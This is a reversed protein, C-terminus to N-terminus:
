EEDYKVGLSAIVLSYDQTDVINDYNLDAVSITKEDRSGLALRVYSIDYADVIGNQAGNQEPLDGALMYVKSFDLNNTGQNLTIQGVSCRYTGPTTETPSAVCIKKQLHKPGKIFLSKDAGPQIDTFTVSGSWVGDDGATFTGYQPESKSDGEGVVVQVRMTNLSAIPKKLIGQFQLRLNLHVGDVPPTTEAGAGITYTGQEVEGWGYSNGTVYGTVRSRETDLSFTGTGEATGKVTVVFSVTSPLQDNPQIFVYAIHASTDSIDHVLQTKGLQTQSDVAVPDGVDVISLNDGTSFYLDTGSIKKSQDGSSILVTVTHEEGAPFTDTSPDITFSVNEAAARSQHTNRQTFTLIVGLVLILILSLFFLKSPSIRM